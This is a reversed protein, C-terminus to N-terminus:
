VKVKGGMRRIVKRQSKEVHQQMFDSLLESREESALLFPDSRQLSRTTTPPAPISRHTLLPQYIWPTIM